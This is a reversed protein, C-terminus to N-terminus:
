VISHFFCKTEHYVSQSKEVLAQRGHSAFKNIAVCAKSLHIMRLCRRWYSWSRSLRQITWCLSSIGHHLIVVGYIVMSFVERWIRRPRELFGELRMSIGIKSRVLVVRIEAIVLNRFASWTAERGSWDVNISGRGIQWRM